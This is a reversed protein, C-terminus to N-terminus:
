LHSSWLCSVAEIRSSSKGSFARRAWSCKEPCAAWHLIWSCSSCAWSEIASCGSTVPAALFAPNSWPLMRCSMASAALHTRFPEVLIKVVRCFCGLCWLARGLSMSLSSSSSSSLWLSVLLFAPAHWWSHLSRVDFWDLDVSLARWCDVESCRVPSLFSSSSFSQFTSFLRSLSGRLGM